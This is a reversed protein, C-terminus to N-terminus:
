SYISTHYINEKPKEDCIVSEIRLLSDDAKAFNYKCYYITFNSYSKCNEM